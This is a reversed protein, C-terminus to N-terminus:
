KSNKQGAGPTPMLPPPVPPPPEQHLPQSLAQANLSAVPHDAPDFPVSAIANQVANRATDVTQLVEGHVPEISKGRGVLLDDTKPADSLPDIAISEEKNGWEPATDATFPPNIAPQHNTPDLL